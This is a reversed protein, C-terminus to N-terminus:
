RRARKEAVAGMLVSAMNIDSRSRTQRVAYL